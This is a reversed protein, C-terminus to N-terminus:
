SPFGSEDLLKVSSLHRSVRLKEVIDDPLDRILVQAM